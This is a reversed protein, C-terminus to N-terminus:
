SILFEENLVGNRLKHIFKIFFKSGKEFLKKFKSQENKLYDDLEWIKIHNIKRGEKWICLKSNNEDLKVGVGNSKGDDWFGIYADNKNFNWVFIGFGSKIGFKYNGCYYKGDPWLFEGFGDFLNNKFEGIYLCDNTFQIIGYGNLKNDLWEGYSITGDNYRFIGLGSKM